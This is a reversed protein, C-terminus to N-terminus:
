SRRRSARAVPGRANRLTTERLRAAHADTLQGRTLRWRWNGHATGPTNMRADSGLALVDQVPILALGARSAHAIGILSWVPDRPDLGTRERDRKSLSEYWGRTTDTDHTSTYV